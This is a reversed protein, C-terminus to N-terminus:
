KNYNINKIKRTLFVLYIILVFLISIFAISIFVYPLLQKGLYKVVPDLIKDKIKNSTQENKNFENNILEIVDDLVCDM